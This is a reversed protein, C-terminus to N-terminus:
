AQTSRDPIKPISSKIEKLMEKRHDNRVKGEEWRRRDDDTELILGPVESPRGDLGIAVYTVFVNTTFKKEGTLGNESFVNIEVEMTERTVFNLRGTMHVIDGMSIPSLFFLSDISGTVSNRRSHKIAVISAVNDIWEMLHGGYLNNFINTDGPLVMRELQTFSERWSKSEM